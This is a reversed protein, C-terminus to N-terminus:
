KQQDRGEGKKQVKGTGLYKSIARGTRRNLKLKEFIGGGYKTPYAVLLQSELNKRMRGRRELKAKGKRVRGNHPKRATRRKSSGNGKPLKGRPEGKARGGRSKKQKGGGIGRLPKDINGEGQRFWAGLEKDRERMNVSQSVRGREERGRWGRTQGIRPGNGPTTGQRQKRKRTLKKKRKPDNKKLNGKGDGRKKRPLVRPGVRACRCKKGWL